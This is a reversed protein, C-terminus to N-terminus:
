KTDTKGLLGLALRNWQKQRKGIFLGVRGVSAYPERRSIQFRNLHRSTELFRRGRTSAGKVGQRARRFAQFGQIKDALGNLERFLADQRGISVTLPSTVDCDLVIRVRPEDKIGLSTNLWRREGM